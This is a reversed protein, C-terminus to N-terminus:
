SVVTPLIRVEKHIENYREGDFAESAPTWHRSFFPPFFSGRNTWVDESLDLVHTHIYTVLSVLVGVFFM